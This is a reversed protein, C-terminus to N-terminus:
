TSAKPSAALTTGPELFSLVVHGGSNESVNFALRLRLTASAWASAMTVLMASAKSWAAAVLAPMESTSASSFDMAVLASIATMRALAVM